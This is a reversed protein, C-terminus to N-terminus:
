LVWWLILLLIICFATVIGVNIVDRRVIRFQEEPPIIRQGTSQQPRPRPIAPTAAPGRAAPVPVQPPAAIPAIPREKQVKGTGHYATRRKGRGRRRPM